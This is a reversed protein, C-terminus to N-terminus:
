FKKKLNRKQKMKKIIIFLTFLVFVAGILLLGINEQSLIPISYLSTDILPIEDPNVVSDIDSSNSISFATYVVNTFFVVAKLIQEEIISSIASGNNTFMAPILQEEALYYNSQIFTEIFTPLDDILLPSLEPVNINEFGGRTTLWSDIDGHFLIADPPNYNETCHLLMSSDAIYRCLVGTIKAIAEYDPVSNSFVKALYISWSLIAVDVKGPGSPYDLYHNPGEDAKTARWSDPASTFTLLVNFYEELGPIFDFIADKVKEAIWSHTRTDWSYTPTVSTPIVLFIVLSFLFFRPKWIMRGSPYTNVM